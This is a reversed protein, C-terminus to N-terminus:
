SALLGADIDACKIGVIAKYTLPTGDVALRHRYREAVVPRLVGQDIMSTILRSFDSGGEGDVFEDKINFAIWGEDAILNYGNAFAAAPIDDFGLAAVCTLCNLDAATLREEVTSNLQRFDEVLYDDYVHPRDRNAAAAAEEIIDIGIVSEVGREVLAEGVMGNGAGLDLVALDGIDDGVGEMAEALLSTVVEPSTCKLKEYFIHEYLGPIAYIEHYDHFRIRRPDGNNRVICYEEDQALGEEDRPLNIQLQQRSEDDHVIFSL